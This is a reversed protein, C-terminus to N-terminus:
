RDTRNSDQSKLCLDPTRATGGFRVPKKRLVLLAAAEGLVREKIDLEEQLNRNERENQKLEKQLRAEEQAVGGNAQLCADKWAEVQEM